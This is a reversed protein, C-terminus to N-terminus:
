RSWSEQVMREKWVLKKGIGDCIYIYFKKPLTILVSCFDLMIYIYIYIDVVVVTAVMLFIWVGVLELELM